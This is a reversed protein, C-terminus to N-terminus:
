FSICCRMSSASRSVVVAAGGASVFYTYLPYPRLETAIPSKGKSLSLAFPTKRADSAPQRHACRVGVYGRCLM